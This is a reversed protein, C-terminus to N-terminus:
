STATSPQEDPRPKPQNSHPKKRSAAPKEKSTTPKDQDGGSVREGGGGNRKPGVKKWPRRSEKPAKPTPGTVKSDSKKPDLNEQSKPDATEPTSTSDGSVSPGASETLPQQLGAVNESKKSATITRPRDHHPKKAPKRPKSTKTAAKEFFTTEAGPDPRGNEVQPSAAAAPANTHPPEKKFSASKKPKNPKSTSTAASTLTPGDGSAHPKSSHPKGGTGNVEACSPDVPPAKEKAEKVASDFAAVSEPKEPPAVTRAKSAVVILDRHHPRPAPPPNSVDASTSPLRKRYGFFGDPAEFNVRFDDIKRYKKLLEAIRPNLDPKHKGYHLFAWFKELGYLHGADYDRLTEEQFDKFLAPWFKHELGYSYFRFLCEIGYRYGAEADARALQRFERYMKNFFNDRLFFSWFRYLTNMEQSKGAGCRERDALCAARYRMYDRSTYGGARLVSQAAVNNRFTSPSATAPSTSVSFSVAHKRHTKPKIPSGASASPDDSQTGSKHRSLPSPLLRHNSSIIVTTGSISVDSAMSVIPVKKEETSGMITSQAACKPLTSTSECFSYSTGRPARKRPTGSNKEIDFAFGVDLEDRRRKGGANMKAPYFGVVRRPTPPMKHRPSEQTHSSGVDFDASAGAWLAAKSVEAVLAAVAAEAKEISPKPHHPHPPQHVGDHFGSGWGLMEPTVPASSIYWPTNLLAIPPPPLLHAPYFFPLAGLAPAVYNNSEIPPPAEVPIAPAEASPGSCTSTTPHSVADETASKLNAFEEASLVQVKNPMSSTFHDDSSSLDTFSSTRSSPYDNFDYDFDFGFRTYSSYRQRWVSRKYEELGHRIERSLDAHTKARTQYDPNPHRDGAPHKSLLRYSPGSTASSFNESPPLKQPPCPTNHLSRFVGKSAGDAVAAPASPKSAEGAVNESSRSISHRDERETARDPLIVVLYKLLDEEDTETGDSCTSTIRSRSQAPRLPKLNETNGECLSRNRTRKPRRDVSQWAADKNEEAKQVVLEPPSPQAEAEPTDPPSAKPFETTVDPFELLPRPSTHLLPASVQVLPPRYIYPDKRRIKSMHADFEVIHSCSCAKVIDELTANLQRMRPFELVVDIPVYRDETVKSQLYRDRGFNRDGFYYDVQYRIRSLRESECVVCNPLRCCCTQICRGFNRYHNVIAPNFGPRPITVPMEFGAFNPQVFFCNSMGDPCQGNIKRSSQDGNDVGRQAYSTSNSSSCRNPSRNSDSDTKSGTNDGNSNSKANESDPPKCLAVDDDLRKWKRKGPPKINRNEKETKHNIRGLEPWEEEVSPQAVHLM